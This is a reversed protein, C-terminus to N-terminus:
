EHNDQHDDRRVAPPGACLLIAAYSVSHTFDQDQDGSRAYDLLAGEYGAPLGCDLALATAELGCMTIGTRAGYDRLGAADAALIRLIAGADLGELAAPIGAQFPVYGFSAGYHTFDTSVLLLAEGAAEAALEEVLAVAAEAADAASLPPVLMPIIAPGPEPWVRQLFPLQIEVAHEHAHAADDLCFPPRGALRRCTATDVPVQGLPTAFADAGSLAIQRLPTRHNPALVFIRRPPPDEPRLLGYLRGATPGSYRYGAHPVVALLARGAPRLAPDAAALFADVEARLAAPASPYWSGSLVSSRLGSM